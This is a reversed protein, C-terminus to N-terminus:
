RKPVKPWPQERKLIATVQDPKMWIADMAAAVRAQEFDTMSRKHMLVVLETLHARLRENAASLHVTQSRLDDNTQYRM